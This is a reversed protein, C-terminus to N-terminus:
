EVVHSYVIMDTVPNHLEVALLANRDHIIRAAIHEKPARCDEATM